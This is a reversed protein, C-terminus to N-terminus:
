SVAESERNSCILPLAGLCHSEVQAEIAKIVPQIHFHHLHLSSLEQLLVRKLNVGHIFPPPHTM